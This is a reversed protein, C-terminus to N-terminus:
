RRRYSSTSRPKEPLRIAKGTTLLARRQASGLHKAGESASKGSAMKLLKTREVSGFEQVPVPVPKKVFRTGGRAQASANWSLCVLALVAFFQSRLKM